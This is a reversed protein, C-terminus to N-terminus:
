AAATTPQGEFARAYLMAGGGFTLTDAFYNLGVGVSPEGVLLPIYVIGVVVVVMWGVIAGALPARWDLAICAGCAILIAGVVYAWATPAPISPPMVHPLPVVPAFGPHLFHEIGFVIAPVAIWFRLIGIVIRSNRALPGFGLTVALALAAGSFSLDRLLVALVFRDGPAKVINPVSILLVFSLLMLGLLAAALGSHRKVVISVAAAILATGTLYTWFLHVPLFSPVMGAILSTFVFHETGFAGMPAAFFVPGFALFREFGPSRLIGSRIVEVVGLILLVSGTFYPWFTTWFSM